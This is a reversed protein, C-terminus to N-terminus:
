YLAVPINEYMIKKPMDMIKTVKGDAVDVWVEVIAERKSVNMIIDKGQIRDNTRMHAKTFIIKYENKNYNSAATHRGMPGMGNMPIEAAYWESPLVYNLFKSDTGSTFKELRAKVDKNKGAINIIKHLKDIDIGSMSISASNETYVAYLSNLTLTNLGKAIGIGITLTLIYIGVLALLKASKRKFRFLPAIKFPLRFPLFMNTKNKYDLYTQGFKAECEKEEVKALLYYAFIMTIFMILVIYRPWLLLLGFSCVIFSAYQPHRIFNYIGGTVAGKKALKHYYVQSAGVCFALFGSLALIGGLINHSNIIVSSTETFHPMFYIILGALLPSDNFFNLVPRYVSYFYVAFPSAMYFFEFAILLYFAAAGWFTGKVTKIQNTNNM